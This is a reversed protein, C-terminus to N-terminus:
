RAKQWKKEYEELMLMDSLYQMLGYKYVIQLKLYKESFGNSGTLSKQKAQTFDYYTLPIYTQAEAVSPSIFKYEKSM